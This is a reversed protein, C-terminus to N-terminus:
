KHGKSHKKNTKNQKEERRDQCPLTSHSWNKILRSPTHRFSRWVSVEEPLLPYGQCVRACNKVGKWCGWRGASRHHGSTDSLLHAAPSRKDNSTVLPERHTVTRGPSEVRCTLQLCLPMHHERRGGTDQSRESEVVLAPWRIYEHREASKRQCRHESCLRSITSRQVLNM